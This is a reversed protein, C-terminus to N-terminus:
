PSLGLQKLAWVHFEGMEDGYPIGEDSGAQKIASSLEIESMELMMQASKLARNYQALKKPAM